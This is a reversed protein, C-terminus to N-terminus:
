ADDGVPEAVLAKNMGADCKGDDVIAVAGFFEGLPARVAANGVEHGLHGSVGAENRGDHRELAVVAVDREICRNGPGNIAAVGANSECVADRGRLAAGM